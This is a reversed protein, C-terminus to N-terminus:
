REARRLVSQICRKPGVFDGAWNHHLWFHATPGGSLLTINFIAHKFLVQQGERRLSKCTYLLTPPPSTGLHTSCREPLPSYPVNLSTKQPLDLAYYIIRDLIVEPLSLLPSRQPVPEIASVHKRSQLASTSSRFLRSLRSRKNEPKPSAVDGSTSTAVTTAPDARLNFNRRVPVKAPVDM